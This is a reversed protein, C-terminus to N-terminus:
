AVRVSANATCGTRQCASPMATPPGTITEVSMSAPPEMNSWTSAYSEVITTAPGNESPNENEAQIQPATITVLNNPAVDTLPLIYDTRLQPPCAFLRTPEIMSTQISPNIIAGNANETFTVAQVQRPEVLACVTFSKLYLLAAFIYCLSNTMM